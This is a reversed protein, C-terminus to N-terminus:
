RSVSNGGDPTYAIGGALEAEKHAVGRRIANDMEDLPKRKLKQDDEYWDKPMRMLVANTPKIGNTGVVRAEASTGSGVGPVPEWDKEKMAEVRNAVDNVWRYAFKKRDLLEEPVGLKQGFNVTSGAKRRREARVENSREALNAM